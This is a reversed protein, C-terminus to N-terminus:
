MDAHVGSMVGSDLHAQGFIRVDAAGAGAREVLLVLPRARGEAAGPLLPAGDHAFRTVLTAMQLMFAAESRERATHETPAAAHAQAAQYFAALLNHAGDGFAQWEGVPEQVVRVEADDGLQHTLAPGLLDLLTSKGSGIIGEVSIVHVSM